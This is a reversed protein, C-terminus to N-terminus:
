AESQRLQAQLRTAERLAIVSGRHDRTMERAVSLTFWARWDTPSDCVERECETRYTQASVEDVRGSPSTLVEPHCRPDGEEIMLALLHDARVALMIQGCILWTVVAGFAVLVVGIVIGEVTATMMLVCATYLLWLAGAAAIIAAGVALLKKNM